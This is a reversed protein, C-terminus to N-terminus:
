RLSTSATIDQRPCLIESLPINPFGYVRTTSAKIFITLLLPLKLFKKRLGALIFLELVWFGFALSMGMIVAIYNVVGEQLMQFIIGALIGFLCFEVLLKLKSTTVPNM